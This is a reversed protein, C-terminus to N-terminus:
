SEKEDGTRDPVQTPLPRGVRRVPLSLTFTTGEGPASEVNLEGGHNETVIFYSVSLGLGTGVGVPKTTFFPEFVRKRTAADMGPGNDEIEIRVRNTEQEHALRLIFRPKKDANREREAQMAEAGNRLINLLVQQIKGSECPVLPLGPEYERIFDIQRFDFKKKLDYDSGALDVCQELLDAVNNTSFSTDSKRAFSLMNQVIEAARRGSTRINGLMRIIGRAEMFARIAEMSTGAKEAARQNAPMEVDTLRNSMVDATQMMGALPNNIEHAMGAALGGVSLMKESQILVEQTRKRETIDRALGFVIQEHLPVASFLATRTSGDPRVYVVEGMDLANQAVAAQQLREQARHPTVDRTTLNKLESVSRGTLREAAANADLYRGTALDVMFIADSSREFLMRYREESERLAEEAHKRETIDDCVILAVLSGDAQRVVRVNEKVWLMSGDKRVKRFEWRAVHAPNQLCAALRQRVAERDDPYFVDLVACGILEEVTYGLQEAGFPNVSLVTGDAGVTFYMSPNDEYLGRYREESERLAAEAQMRETIERQLQHNTITLAHTRERVKHELQETLDRLKLHTRVRALIEEEHVPKTVYDVAGIRFGELKQESATLATMFIVPIDITTQNAKLRRCTEFGDIGPMAVDMLILDPQAYQARKLASEGNRSMLITFFDKLYDSIMRLIIADDDVILITHSRQSVCEDADHDKM